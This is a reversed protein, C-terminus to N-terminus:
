VQAVARELSRRHDLIWRGGRAQWAMGWVMRHPGVFDPTVMAEDADNACGRVAAEVMRDVLEARQAGGLGYADVFLSVHHARAEASPAFRRAERSVSRITGTSDSTSM